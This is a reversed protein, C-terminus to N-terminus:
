MALIWNESMSVGSLCNTEEQALRTRWQLAIWAATVAGAGASCFDPHDFGRGPRAAGGNPRRRERPPLQARPRSEHKLEGGSLSAPILPSKGHARRTENSRLCSPHRILAAALRGM